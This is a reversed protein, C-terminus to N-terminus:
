GGTGHAQPWASNLEHIALSVLRVSGGDAYLELPMDCAAPLFCFSASALGGAAFLELSTRDVLLQLRLCGDGDRPAPIPHGLWTFRAAAVDYRLDHGRIIIGFAAADGPDIVAELHFLDWTTDPALNRYETAIRSQWGPGHVHYLDHRNLGPSLRHDQWRLTRRHLLESERVPQRCLRVGHRTSRLTLEVPFSMQGNFPMAPFHGNRMWSIQIRRGDETPMDSWTQAAYGNPGLECRLAPTEPTFTTGDFSGLRYVGAAGWFVWRTDGPAGDVPLEFLDPCEGTDAVELDCLHRWQKLDPSGYLAFDNGDLFLAMIWQGTPAHRIVKPDRNNARVHGLVPNGAYRRFNRGRDTSYAIAQVCPTAGPQNPRPAGFGGTTYVAVLAQEAGGGAFGASNDTDVVASGSWIFGYEDPAIATDLERWHVLDTSVAHGWSNAAHNMFGPTHQFFLHYEGRYWVLGNPDNMWSHRPSFHFQPRHLEDYM